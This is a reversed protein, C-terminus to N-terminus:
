PLTYNSSASGGDIEGGSITAAVYALSTWATTGDGIKVKGTDTELAIRNKALVANATTFNVATDRDIGNDLILAYETQGVPRYYVKGDTAYRYRPRQTDQLAPNGSYMYVEQNPATGQVKFFNGWIAFTAEATALRSEWANWQNIISTLTLQAQAAYYKASYESGDVKGDMKIAWQMAADVSAVGAPDAYPLQNWLRSGDGMKFKHSDVEYGMEGKLLLPNAAAWESATASASVLRVPYTTM